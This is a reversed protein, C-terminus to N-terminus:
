YAGYKKWPAKYQLFEDLLLAWRAVRVCLDKKNMALMFIRYNIVIDQVYEIFLRLIKKLTKIIALVELKCSAYKSEAPTKGSSYYVSYFLDDENYKQLLIAGYGLTSADIYLETDVGIRYLNLM